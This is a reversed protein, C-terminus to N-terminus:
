SVLKIESIKFSADDLMLIGFSVEGLEVVLILIGISLNGLEDLEIRSDNYAQM